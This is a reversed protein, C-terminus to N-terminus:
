VGLCNIVGVIGCSDWLHSATPNGCAVAAVMPASHAQEVVVFHLGVTVQDLPDESHTVTDTPRLPEFDSRFFADSGLHRIRGFATSRHL